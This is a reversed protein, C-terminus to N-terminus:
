VIGEETEPLRSKRIALAGLAPGTPAPPTFGASWAALVERPTWFPKVPAEPAYEGVCKPRATKSRGYEVERQPIPHCYHCWWGSRAAYHDINGCRACYDPSPAVPGSETDFAM